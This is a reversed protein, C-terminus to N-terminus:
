DDNGDGDDEGLTNGSGSFGGQVLHQRSGTASPAQNWKTISIRNFGNGSVLDQIEQDFVLSSSKKGLKVPRPMSRDTADLKKNSSKLGGIM